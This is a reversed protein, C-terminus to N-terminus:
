VVIGGDDEDSFKNMVIICIFIMIMLVLSLSAGVGSYVDLDFKKQIVDGIMLTKTSGLKDAIYFTSVSPVFVMTIGSIIGPVSLPFIVRKFKQFADGGLDEAAEYLSNDIKTISTYIPLIMYPLYNYVMGLIVAGSTGILQFPGVGFFELVSNIIGTKELITTWSYTRILLNMWMPLMVLMMMIGQTNKSAKSMFYSFPYALIFTIITAVLAYGISRMFIDFYEPIEKFNELTLAGSADTFTFYGVIILPVVIFLASWIIYPANILRSALNKNM